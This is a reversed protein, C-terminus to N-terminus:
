STDGLLSASAKMGPGLGTAAGAGLTLDSSLVLGKDFSLSAKVSKVLSVSKTTESVCTSGASFSLIETPPSVTGVTALQAPTFSWHAAPLAQITPSPQSPLTSTPGIRRERTFINRELM